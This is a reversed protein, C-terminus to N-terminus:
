AAGKIKEIIATALKLAIDPADEYASDFDRIVKAIDEVSVKPAPKGESIAYLKAIGTKQHESCEPCCMREAPCNECDEALDSIAQVEEKTLSPTSALTKADQAKLVKTLNFMEDIVMQGDVEHCKSNEYCKGIEDDTLLRPNEPEPNNM